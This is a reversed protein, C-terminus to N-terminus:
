GDGGVIYGKLENDMAKNFMDVIEKTTEPPKIEVPKFDPFNVCAKAEKVKPSNVPNNVPCNSLRDKIPFVIEVAGVKIFVELMKTFQIAIWDILEENRAYDCSGDLGSEYFFAHVIEHRLVEKKYFELDELSADDKELRRIIIKKISFDTYGSLGKLKSDDKEEADFIINYETGLINIKM